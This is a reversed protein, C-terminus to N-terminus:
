RKQKLSDLYKIWSNNKSNLSSHNKLIAPLKQEGETRVLFDIFLFSYVDVGPIMNYNNILLDVTPKNNLQDLYKDVVARYFNNSGYYCALGENLFTPMTPSIQNISTHVYEHILFLLRDPYPISAIKISSKPSVMQIKGYGSIAPSGKLDRNIINEDYATQNPFIEIITKPDFNVKLIDTIKQLNNKCCQILDDVTEKDQDSYKFIGYPTARSNNLVQAQCPYSITLIFLLKLLNNIMTTHAIVHCSVARYYPSTTVFLKGM